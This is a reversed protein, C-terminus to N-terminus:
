GVVEDADKDGVYKRRPVEMFSFVDGIATQFLRGTNSKATEALLRNVVIDVVRDITIGVVPLGTNVDRASMPPSFEASTIALEWVVIPPSWGSPTSDVKSIAGNGTMTSISASDMTSTNSISNANANGGQGLVDKTFIRMERLLFSGIRIIDEAKKEAWGDKKPPPKQLFTMNEKIEAMNKEVVKGLQRMVDIGEAVRVKTIASGSRKPTRNKDIGLKDGETTAVGTSKQSHFKKLNELWNQKQNQLASQLGKTGGESTAKGLNSVAGVLREVIRNAELQSEEEEEDVRRGVEEGRFGTSDGREEERDLSMSKSLGLLCDVETVGESETMLERKGERYMLNRKRGGRRQWYDEMILAADPIDLSPDLLHFNFINRRKEIFVQVDEVLGTYVDKFTHNLIQGYKPIEIVSAFNLTAEIRGVRALCPSEWEWDSRDKNHVVLDYAIVKGRWVDIQIDSLTVLTGNMAKSLEKEAFHIAYRRLAGTQHLFSLIATLIFTIRLM